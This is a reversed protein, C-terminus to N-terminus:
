FLQYRLDVGLQLEESGSSQSGSMDRSIFQIFSGANLRESFQYTSDVTYIMTEYIGLTPDTVYNRRSYSVSAGAVLHALVPRQYRFSGSHFLTQQRSLEYHSDSRTGSVSYSHMGITRSLSASWRKRTVYDNDPLTGTDAEVLAEDFFGISTDSVDQSYGVQLVHHLFEDHRFSAQYFNSDVSEGLEPVLSSRGVNLSLSSRVLARTVGVSVSKRDYPDLEDETLITEYQSSLNFRTLQNYHHLVAMGVNARESDSVVEDSNEVNVYHAHGELDTTDTLEVSVQPGSSLTNRYNRNQLDEERTEDELVQARTFSTEWHLVDEVLNLNLMGLGSTVATREGSTERLYRQNEMSVNFDAEVSQRQETLRAELGVTNRVDHQRQQKLSTANDSSMAEAYAISQLELAQASASLLTILGACPLARSLPLSM